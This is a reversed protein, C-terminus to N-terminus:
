ATVFRTSVGAPPRRLLFAWYIDPGCPVTFRIENTREVVFGARSFLSAWSSAPFVSYHNPNTEHHASTDPAPVEVYVLGNAKTLQRYESLTFFPAVSHELVHRCWLLDFEGEGFGLFNQDMQHVNLGRARCIDFDTGMTVGIAELGLQRFQELAVGQGCGVDLVRQGACIFGDRHLGEIMKRTISVHPETPPEPYIDGVLTDLFVDFRSYDRM